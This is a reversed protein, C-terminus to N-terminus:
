DPKDKKMWPMLPPTIPQIDKLWEEKKSSDSPSGMLELSVGAVENIEKQMCDCGGLPGITCCPDNKNHWPCSCCDEEEQCKYSSEEGPKPIDDVHMWHSVEIDVFPKKQVYPDTIPYYWTPANLDDGEDEWIWSGNLSRYKDVFYINGESYLLFEYQEKQEPLREKCSIRKM